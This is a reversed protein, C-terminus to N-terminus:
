GNDEEWLQQAAVVAAYSVVITHRGCETIAVHEGDSQLQLADGPINLVRVGDVTEVFSGPPLIIARM